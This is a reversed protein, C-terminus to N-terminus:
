NEKRKKIEEDLIQDLDRLFNAKTGWVEWKLEVVDLLQWVKEVLDLSIDAKQALQVLLSKRSEDSLAKM